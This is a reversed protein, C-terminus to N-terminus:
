VYDMCRVFDSTFPVTLCFDDFVYNGTYLIM